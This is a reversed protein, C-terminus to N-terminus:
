GREECHTTSGFERCVVRKRGPREISTERGFRRITSGDSGLAGSGYKYFTVGGAAAPSSVLALAALALALRNLIGEVGGERWTQANTRYSHFPVSGARRKKWGRKAAKSRKERAKEDARYRDLFNQHSRVAALAREATYGKARLERYYPSGVPM